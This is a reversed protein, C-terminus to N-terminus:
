SGGKVPCDECPCSDIKARLAKNEAETVALSVTLSAIRQALGAIIDDANLDMLKEKSPLPM